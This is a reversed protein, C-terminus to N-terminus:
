LSGSLAVWYYVLYTGVGLLFLANAQYAYRVGRQLRRGVANGLLAAGLAVATLVTGMGLAYSLFQGMVAMPRGDALATGVVVLFVPLACSLSSLAYVIGYLFVNWLGERPTLRLRGALDIRVTPRAILLWLGAVVMAIGALLGLYPFWGALWRAGGAVLGGLLAFVLAFGLTAMAGFAMAALIRRPATRHGGMQANLQYSVYGPLLLFGCPNVTAVMGAAFAYGVPLWDAVSAVAGEVLGQVAIVLALLAGVFGLLLAWPWIPFPEPGDTNDPPSPTTPDNM